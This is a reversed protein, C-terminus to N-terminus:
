LEEEKIFENKIKEKARFYTVRTWSSSKGFIDGIQQYPLEGFFRLTFVEKYPETITSLIKYLLLVDHSLIYNECIDSISVVNEDLEQRYKDHEKKRYSYYTNKAIQCLWTYIKCKGQFKNINKYAKYFTEQTLEESLNEDFTICVLYKYVDNAYLRYIEDFAKM